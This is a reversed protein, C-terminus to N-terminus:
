TGISRTARRIWSSAPSRGSPRTSAQEAPPGRRSPSGASPRTTTTRARTPSATTSSAHLAPPVGHGADGRPRVPARAHGAPRVPRAPRERGRHDRRPGRGGAPARGLAERVAEFFRRGARSGAARRPPRRGPPSRGTPRSAGSTTSGSCTWGTSSPRSGRVWWAYREAAHAPWHYLPNGWLQGTEPAFADPPVGAMVTPRGREDLCFLDPRAWVDASDQAVFIPLDGLLQVQGPRCAERLARWQRAFAYQVFQHIGSRARRAEGALRRAGAARPPGPGPEWDYWASGDHHEKLAMYLAYDDLWDRTRARRVGRLGAARPRFDAFARRLLWEKVASRRRRLRRPRRPLEATPGTAPSLWGAEALREPSILLPNGAFSSPSQYPSGGYGTPGLPLM